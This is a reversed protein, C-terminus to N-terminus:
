DPTVPVAIALRALLPVQDTVKQARVTMVPCPATRVVREAVSGMLLHAMGTRGHTGMVILDMERAKAFAVISDAARGTLVHSTAQLQARDFPTLRKALRQEAEAFRQARFRAIEYRYIESALVDAFHDELVHALQLTGGCAAAIRRAYEFAANAHESFDTAVLIRHFRPTM